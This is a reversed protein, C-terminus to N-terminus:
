PMVPFADILLHFGPTGCAPEALLRTGTTKIKQSLLLRDFFGPSSRQWTSSSRL